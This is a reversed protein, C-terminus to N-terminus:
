FVYILNVAAKTPGVYNHSKGSELKTGCHTCPYSDFKTYIWGLGIEAEISWRRSLIWTYGYAAGLGVGWGQYRRNALMSFDSGLFNKWGSINGWNYQGGIAHFGVFHGKWAECFWYRAEPQAMWHKWYHNSVTWATISGSLDFTWKPALRVEVGLNPAAVADSLLNSKLAVNQAFAGSAAILLFAVFLHIKTMFKNKTM